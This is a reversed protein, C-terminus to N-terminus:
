VEDNVGKIMMREYGYKSQLEGAIDEYRLGALKGGATVADQSVDALCFDPKQFADLEENSDFEFDIVILGALKEQYVDIEAKHGDIECYFRRKVFSKASCAALAEYEAQTLQITHETQRSSDTGDIPTKKTIEYAEGKHRLRLIAHAATDPVYVDSIIESRCQLLESPLVGALYIRELEIEVMEVGKKFCFFGKESV